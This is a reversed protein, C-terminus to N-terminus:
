HCWKIWSVKYTLSIMTKWIVLHWRHEQSTLSLPLPSSEDPLPSATSGHPDVHSGRKGRSSDPRPAHVQLGIAAYVSGLAGQGSYTLGLGLEWYPSTSFPVQHWDRLQVHVHIWCAVCRYGSMCVCTSVCMCLISSFVLCFFRNEKAQLLEHILKIPKLM